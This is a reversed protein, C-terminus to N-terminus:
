KVLVMQKTKVLKSDVYLSYQYAGSALMSADINLSGKGSGSLNVEKLVKGSKDTVIIKASSFQQPLNYNITTAHNFPNPINQSLSVVAFSSVQVSQNNATQGNPQGIQANVM